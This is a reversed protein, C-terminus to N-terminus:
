GRLRKELKDPADVTTARGCFPCFQPFIDDDGSPLYEGCKSCKHGFEDVVWEATWAEWDIRAPHYAYFKVGEFDEACVAICSPTLIEGRRFLCWYGDWGEITKNEVEAWVPTHREMERLQELTLPEGINAGGIASLIVDVTEDTLDFSHKLVTGNEFPEYGQYRKLWLVAEEVNM